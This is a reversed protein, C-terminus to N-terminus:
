VIKLALFFFFLLSLLFFREGQKKERGYLKDTKCYIQNIFNIIVHSFKNYNEKFWYYSVVWSKNYSHQLITTSTAGRM